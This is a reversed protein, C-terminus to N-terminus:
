HNCVPNLNPVTRYQCLSVMPLESETSYASAAVPDSLFKVAGLYIEYFVLSLCFAQMANLFSGM